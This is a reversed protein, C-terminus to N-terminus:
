SKLRSKRFMLPSQISLTLKGNIMTIILEMLAHNRALPLPNPNEVLDMHELLIITVLPSLMLAAGNPITIFIALLSALERSITGLEQPTAVM